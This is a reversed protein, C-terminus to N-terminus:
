DGRSCRTAIRGLIMGGAIGGLFMAATAERRRLPKRSTGEPHAALYTIRTNIGNLVIEAAREINPRESGEKRTYQLAKELDSIVLSATGRFYEEIETGPKITPRQGEDFGFLVGAKQLLARKQFCIKLSDRSDLSQINRVPNNDLREPYM